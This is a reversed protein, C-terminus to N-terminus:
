NQIQTMPTILKRTKNGKECTVYTHNIFIKQRQIHIAIGTVSSSHVQRLRGRLPVNCLLGEKVSIKTKKM